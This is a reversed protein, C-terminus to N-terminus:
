KTHVHWYIMGSLIAAFFCWVSSFTEFYFWAAIGSSILVVLGFWNIFKKSSILCSGCTAIFYPVLVPLWYPTFTDYRICANIVRATVPGSSILYIAYLGTAVGVALFLRLLKRRKPESELRLVAFPVLVPWLVYAFFSYGYAALSTLGTFKGISIWAIGDFLQQIGFLLPISAFPLEKKKKKVASTTLVGTATLAAGALFSAPASFCM